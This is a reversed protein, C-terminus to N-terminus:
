FFLISFCQFVKFRKVTHDFVFSSSWFHIHLVLHRIKLASEDVGNSFIKTITHLHIQEKKVRCSFASNKFAFIKDKNNM